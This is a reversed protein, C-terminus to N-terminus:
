WTRSIIWRRGTAAGRPGPPTSTPPTGASPPSGALAPVFLGDYDVLKLALAGDKRGPVLLVNGHQLDGHGIGAGRLEEALRAWMRALRELVAPRDLHARVVANLPQGEAWRMEVVPWWAGAARIGKELYDFDVLFPRRQRRVHEAVARYRRALDAVPRTFCKVAFAGAPSDLRYVDAFNGSCARPVGLTALTEPVGQRLEPDAFCLAPSQIAVNYDTPQPWATPM